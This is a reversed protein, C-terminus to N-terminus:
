ASCIQPFLLLIEIIILTYFPSQNIFNRNPKNEVPVNELSLCRLDLIRYKKRFVEGCTLQFYIIAITKKKKLINLYTKTNPKTTSLLLLYYSEFIFKLQFLFM